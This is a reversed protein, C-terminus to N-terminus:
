QSVTSRSARVARSTSSAHTTSCIRLGSARVIAIFYAPPVAGHRGHGSRFRILRPDATETAAAKAAVALAEGIGSGGGTIVVVRDNLEM